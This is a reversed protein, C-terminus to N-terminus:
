LKHGSSKEVLLKWEKFVRFVEHKNRLVYTWVYHTKDDIFTLFYEAGALSPSSLKGCLDSHIIGLPEDGRQRQGETFSEKRECM